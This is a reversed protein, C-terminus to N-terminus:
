PVTANRTPASHTASLHVSYPGAAKDTSTVNTIQVYGTTTPLLLNTVSAPITFTGTSANTSCVAKVSHGGVLTGSQVAVSVTGTGPAWAVVFPSNRTVILSGGDSVPNSIVLRTPAMVTATFAPVGGDAGTATATVTEGGNWWQGTGNGLYLDTSPNHTFPPGGDSGSVVVSLDGASVKAGGDFTPVGGDHVCDSIDCGGTTTFTCSLAGIPAAVGAAYFAGSGGRTFPRRRERAPHARRLRAHRHHFRGRAAM